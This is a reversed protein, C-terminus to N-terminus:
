SYFRSNGYDNVSPASIRRMHLMITTKDRHSLPKYIISHEKKKGIGKDKMYNDYSKLGAYNM